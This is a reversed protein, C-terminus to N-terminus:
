TTSSPRVPRKEILHMVREDCYDQTTAHLDDVVQAGTTCEMDIDDGLTDFSPSPPAVDEDETELHHEAM